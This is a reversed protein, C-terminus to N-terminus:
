GGGGGSQQYVVGTGVKSTFQAGCEERLKSIMQKESDDSSSTQALM